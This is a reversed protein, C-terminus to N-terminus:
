VDGLNGAILCVNERTMKLDVYRVLQTKLGLEKEIFRKRGFDIVRKCKYGLAEREEFTLGSWHDEVMDAENVCLHEDDGDEEEDEKNKDNDVEKTEGDDDDDYKPRKGCLFWSTMVCVKEFDGETLGWEEEWVDRVPYWNMKCIQHCCLAFCLGAVGGPQSKQYNALCRLTLDTACGCLHKAFAVVKKGSVLEIKSLDVDKIDVVLREVHSPLGNHGERIGADFKKRYTNRDILIFSSPHGVAKHVYSALEAKGAGFEVFCYNKDLLGSQHM